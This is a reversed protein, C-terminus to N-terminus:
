YVQQWKEKRWVDKAFEKIKLIKGKKENKILMFVIRYFNLKLSNIWVFYILCQHPRVNTVSKVRLAMSSQYM